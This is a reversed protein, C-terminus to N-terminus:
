DLLTSHGISWKLTNLKGESRSFILKRERNSPIFISNENIRRKKRVLEDLDWTMLKLFDKTYQCSEPDINNYQKNYIFAEYACGNGCISIAFCNVCAQFFIPSRKKWRNLISSYFSTKTSKSYDKGMILFSKCPGVNGKADINITTGASAGCDYFKFKRYVFPEAKRMVLELYVGKSRVKQFVEYIKLAYLKPSILYKYKTLGPTPPKIFNVGLSAPKFNNIIWRTTQLLKDVNHKGVVLSLGYEIEKKRIIELGKIVRDFSGKGAHDVRLLNHMRRTGDLSVILKIHSKKIFNVIEESMLIANTGIIINISNNVDIKKIYNVLFKIKNFFILPEGGTIHIIKPKTSDSSNILNIAKILKCAPTSMKTPSKINKEVKCYSCNLNCIDTLLIRLLSYNNKNETFTDKKQYIQKKVLSDTKYNRVLIKNKILKKVFKEDGNFFTEIKKLAFEKGKYTNYFNRIIKNGYVQQLTLSHTLCFRKKNSLLSIYQSLRM